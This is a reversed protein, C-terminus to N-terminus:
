TTMYIKLFNQEVNLPDANLIEETISQASFSHPAQAFVIEM